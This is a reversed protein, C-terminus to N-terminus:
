SPLYINPQVSQQIAVESASRAKAKNESIESMPVGQRYHGCLNQFNSTAAIPAAVWKTIFSTISM